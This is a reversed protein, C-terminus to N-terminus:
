VVSKRDRSTTGMDGEGAKAWVEAWLDAEMEAEMEARMRPLVKEWLDEWAEPSLSALFDAHLLKLAEECVVEEVKRTM